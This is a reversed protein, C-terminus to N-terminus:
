KFIVCKLSKGDGALLYRKGDRFLDCVLPTTTGKIKKTVKKQSINLVHIEGNVSNLVFSAGEDDFYYRASNYGAEDSEYRFIETGSFDYCILKNRDLVVLDTKKDDDILEFFYEPSEFDAGLKLIDKKDDLSIKELLSNKGDFYVIRSSQITNGADIHFKNLKTLLRNTLDIRGEGRRSYVYIKGEVDCAILYDSAGVKVYQVPMTVEDLTRITAFKENKSGNINYNYIKDDDCSILIRFDKKNEYDFVTASKIEHQMKVPFGEVYNGNRDILHLYNASTFFLQFKNNKFADVLFLDSVPFEIIKKKWLANGTANVLYLQNRADTVVIENEGSKHNVFMFPQGILVTDAEFTWLGPTENNNKSQQYKLSIRFKLYQKYNSVNMGCDSVKQIRQLLSDPLHPFISKISGKNKSVSEYLQCNFGELLNDKAYQMFTENQALSSNNLLSERCFNLADRDTTLVLCNGYVFAFKAKLNFLKGYLETALDSLSDKLIFNKTENTVYCSDSLFTLGEKVAASDKIETILVEKEGISTKFAAEVAVDGLNEEMQRQVNYLASDNALRWFTSSKIELNKKLLSYNITSYAKYSITNFPLLQFFSSNCLPQGEMLNFVGGSDCKNFGNLTIADPNIETNFVSYGDLLSQSLDIKKLSNKVASHDLYANLVEDQDLNKIMEKFIISATLKESKSDFCKSILEQSDGLVFVGNSVMCYYKKRGKWFQGVGNEGFECKFTGKISEKFEDEHAVDNLNFTIVNGEPYTALFLIKNQFFEKLHENENILSDFYQVNADTESIESYSNFESWILNQRCLKNM